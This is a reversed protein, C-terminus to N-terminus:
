RTYPRRHRCVAGHPCRPPRCCSSQSLVGPKQSSGDSHLDPIQQFCGVPVSLWHRTGRVSCACASSALLAWGSFGAESECRAARCPSQARPKGTGIVASRCLCLHNHSLVSFRALGRPVLAWSHPPCHSSSSLFSHLFSQLGCPSTVPCHSEGHCPAM